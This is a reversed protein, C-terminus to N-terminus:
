RRHARFLDDAEDEARQEAKRLEAATQQEIVLGVARQGVAHERVRLEAERVRQEADSCARATCELRAAAGLADLTAARVAQEAWRLETVGVAEAFKARAAMLAAQVKGQREQAVLRCARRTALERQAASLDQAAEQLAAARMAELAHLPDMM